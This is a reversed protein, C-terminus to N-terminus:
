LWYLFLNKKNSAKVHWSREGQEDDACRTGIGSWRKIAGAVHVAEMMQGERWGKEFADNSM